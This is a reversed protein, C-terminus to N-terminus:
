PKSGLLKDAEQANDIIEDVLKATVRDPTHGQSVIAFSVADPEPQSENDMPDSMYVRKSEEVVHEVRTAVSDIETQLRAVDLHIRDLNELIEQKRLAKLTKGKVEMPENRKQNPRNHTMKPIMRICRRLFRGPQEVGQRRRQVCRRLPGCSYLNSWETNIICGEKEVHMQMPARSLQHKGLRQGPLSETDFSAGCEHPLVEINSFEGTARDDDADALPISIEIDVNMLGDCSVCRAWYRTKIKMAPVM